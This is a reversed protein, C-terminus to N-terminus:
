LEEERRYAASLRRLELYYQALRERAHQYRYSYILYTALEYAALFFLYALGVRFILSTLNTNYVALMLNEFDYFGFILGLLLFAATATIFSRLMQSSIYDGRFYANIREDADGGNKEYVAMKHMLRVRQGNIM